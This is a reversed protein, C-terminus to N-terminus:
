RAALPIHVTYPTEDPPPAPAPPELAAAFVGPRLEIWAAETGVAIEPPPQDLVLGAFLEPTIAIDIREVHRWPASSNERYVLPMSIVGDADVTLATIPLQASSEALTITLLEPRLTLTTDITQMQATSFVGLRLTALNLTPIRGALPARVAHRPEISLTVVGMRSPNHAYADGIEVPLTINTPGSVVRSRGALFREGSAEVFFLALRFPQRFPVNHVTLDSLGARICVPLPMQSPAAGRGDGDVEPPETTAIVTGAAGRLGSNNAAVAYIIYRGASAYRHTVFWDAQGAATASRTVQGDGWDIAIPRAPGTAGTPDDLHAALTVELGSVTTSVRLTPPQGLPMGGYVAGAAPEDPAPIALLRYDQLSPVRKLIAVLHPHLTEALAADPDPAAALYAEKETTSWVRSEVHELRAALNPLGTLIRLLALVRGVNARAALEVLNGASDTVQFLPDNLDFHLDAMDQRWTAWGRGLIADSLEQLPSGDPTDTAYENLYHRVQNLLYIAFVRARQKIARPDTLYNIGTQQLGAQGAAGQVCMAVHTCVQPTFLCTGDPPPEELLLTQGVGRTGEGYIRQNCNIVDEGIYSSHCGNQAPVYCCQLCETTGCDEGFPTATEWVGMLNPFARNLFYERIECWPVGKDCDAPDNGAAICGVYDDIAQGPPALPFDPPWFSPPPLNMGFQQVSTAAQAPRVRLQHSRVVVAASLAGVLRFLDRRSIGCALLLAFRDFLPPNM